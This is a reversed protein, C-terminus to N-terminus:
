LDLAFKIEKVLGTSVVRALLVRERKPICVSSM